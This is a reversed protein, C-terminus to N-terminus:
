LEKPDFSITPEAETVGKKPVLNISPKPLDPVSGDKNNDTSLHKPGPIIAKIQTYNM